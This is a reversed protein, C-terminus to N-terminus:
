KVVIDGGDLVLPVEVARLVADLKNAFWVGGNKKLVYISISDNKGQTLVHTDRGQQWGDDRDPLDSWWGRQDALRISEHHGAGHMERWLISQRDCTNAALVSIATSTFKYTRLTTGTTGDPNNYSHVIAWVKGQPNTGSKNYKMNVFAFQTEDGDAGKLFGRSETGNNIRGGGLISSTAPPRAIVVLQDTAPDNMVYNYSVIIAIEIVDSDLSGINWQAVTTAPGQAPTV